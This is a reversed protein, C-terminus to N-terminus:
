SISDPLGQHGRAPLLLGVDRMAEGAERGGGSEYCKRGRTNKHSIRSKDVVFFPPHRKARSIQPGQIMLKGEFLVNQGM